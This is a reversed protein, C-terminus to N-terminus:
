TQLGVSPGGKSNLVTEKTPFYIRFNEKIQELLVVEEEPRTENRKSKPKSAQSYRQRYETLGDDGPLILMAQSKVTLKETGKAALYIMKLFDDNLSGISSTKIRVM